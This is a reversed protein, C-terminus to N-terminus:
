SGLHVLVVAAVAPELRKQGHGTGGLEAGEVHLGVQGDGPQGHEGVETGGAFRLKQRTAGLALVQEVIGAQGHREEAFDYRKVEGYGARLELVAGGFAMLSEGVADAEGNM